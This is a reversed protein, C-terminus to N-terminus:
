WGIPWRTRICCSAIARHRTTSPLARKVMGQENTNAKIGHPRLELAVGSAPKGTGLETVFAILQDADVYADVALKTSQVWSILRPPDYKEKWPYPEVM